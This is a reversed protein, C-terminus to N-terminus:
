SQDEWHGAINQALWQIEEASADGALIVTEDGHEALYWRQDEGGNKMRTDWEIGGIEEFGTSLATEMRHAAWTPNAQDTQTVSVFGGSPTAYGVEWFPVGEAAGNNWRAYNTHWGEPPELALLAFDAEGSAEEATQELNVEPRYTQNDPRPQLWVFPLTIGVLVIMTIVIARMPTNLRKAQKETIQPIVQENPAAEQAAPQEEPRERGQEPNSQSVRGM